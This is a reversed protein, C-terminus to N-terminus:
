LLQLPSPIPSFGVEVVAFLMIQRVKITGHFLERTIINVEVHGKEKCRYTKTREELFKM